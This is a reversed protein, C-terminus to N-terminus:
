FVNISTHGSKKCITCHILTNNEQGKYREIKSIIASEEALALEAIDDFSDHNRSRVITHIRDSQLGQIFCINRLLDSLTLIGAREVPTCDM